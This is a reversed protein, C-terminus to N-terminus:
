KHYRGGEAIKFARYLQELLIVRFLHHPFTMKSVSLRIEARDIIKKHLGNSGGVIFCLNSRGTKECIQIFQSFTKSDLEKGDICCAIQLANKPVRFEIAAAEKELAADVEAFSPNPPLRSEPVEEITLRCYGNLRKQYERVADAFFDEKIRGV